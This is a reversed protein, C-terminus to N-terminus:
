PITVSLEVEDHARRCWGEAQSCYFYLVSARLTHRGPPATRSVRVPFRVGAQTDVYRGNPFAARPPPPPLRQSEDLVRQEADLTLRPAPDANVHIPADLPMFRVVVDAEGGSAKRELSAALGVHESGSAAPAAAALASLLVVGLTPV